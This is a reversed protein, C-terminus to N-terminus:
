DRHYMRWYNCHICLRQFCTPYVDMGCIYIALHSGYMAKWRGNVTHHKVRVRTLIAM